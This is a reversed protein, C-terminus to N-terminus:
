GFIPASSLEPDEHKNVDSIRIRVLVWGPGRLLNQNAKEPRVKDSAVLRADCHRPSCWSRSRHARFYGLVATHRQRGFNMLRSPSRLGKV